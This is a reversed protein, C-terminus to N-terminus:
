GIEIVDSPCPDQYLKEALEARRSLTAQQNVYGKDTIEHGDISPPELM